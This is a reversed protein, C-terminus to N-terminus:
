EVSPSSRHCFAIFEALVPHLYKEKNWALRLPRQIEPQLDLAVVRGDRVAAATALGSLLCLGLGCAVANLISETTNLELGPQWSQLHSGILRHFQERSGSGQERLLWRQQELDAMCLRGARALPHDPAAVVLMRDPMWEQQCLNGDSLTGELLAMDLRFDTLQSVVTQTNSIEVKFEIHPHLQAFDAILRPLLYNGITHSAGIHLVGNARDSRQFLHEITDLRQLLEDALPLLQAGQTNLQLRNRVRDFLRCDLQKELEQLSMSAAAKTIFLRSAAEALNGAQAVAVFLRLQKLTINM